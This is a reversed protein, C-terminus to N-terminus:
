RHSPRGRLRLATLIQTIAWAAVVPTAHPRGDARVTSVWFLQAEQLTSRTEEWGIAIAAPDSHGRDLATVPTPM